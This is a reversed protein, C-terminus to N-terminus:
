QSSDGRSEELGRELMGFPMGKYGSADQALDYTSKPEVISEFYNNAFTLVGATIGVTALYLGAVLVNKGTKIATGKVKGGLGKLKQSRLKTILKM